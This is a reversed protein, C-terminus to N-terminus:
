WCRLVQLWDPGVEGEMNNLGLTVESAKVSVPGFAHVATERSDSLPWRKVTNKALYRKPLHEM